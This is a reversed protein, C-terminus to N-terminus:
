PCTNEIENVWKFICAHCYKHECCDLSTKNNDEISEFCITCTLKQEEGDM